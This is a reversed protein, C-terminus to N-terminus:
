SALYIGIEKMVIIRNSLIGCYKVNQQGVPESPQMNQIILRLLQHAHKALQEIVCEYQCVPSDIKWVLRILHGAPTVALKDSLCAASCHTRQSGPSNLENKQQNLKVFVKIM